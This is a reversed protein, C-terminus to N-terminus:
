PNDFLRGQCCIRQSLTVCHQSSDKSLYCLCASLAASSWMKRYTLACMSQRCLRQGLRRVTHVHATESEMTVVADQWLHKGAAIMSLVSVSASVSALREQCYLTQTM